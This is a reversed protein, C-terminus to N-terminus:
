PGADHPRPKKLSALMDRDRLKEALSLASEGAASLTSADAGEELLFRVINKRKGEVALMLPTVGREDKADPQAGCELMRKMLRTVVHEPERSAVAVHLATVGHEDSATVNFCRTLFLGACDLKDFRRERQERSTIGPAEPYPTLALMLATPGCAKRTGAEQEEGVVLMRAAQIDGEFAAVELPSYQPEVPCPATAGPEAAARAVQADHDGQTLQEVRPPRDANLENRATQATQQPKAQGCAIACAIACLGLRQTPKSKPM